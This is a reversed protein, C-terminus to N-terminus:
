GSTVADCGTCEDIEVGNVADLIVSYFGATVPPAGPAAEPAVFPHGAPAVLTVVWVETDPDVAPNGRQRLMASANAYTTRVAHAEDSSSGPQNGEVESVAKDRSIYSGSVPWQKAAQAKSAALGTNCPLPGNPGPPPCPLTTTPATQPAASGGTLVAASAAGAIVLGAGLGLVVIRRNM